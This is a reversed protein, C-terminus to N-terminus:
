ISFRVDDGARGGAYSAERRELQGLVASDHQDAPVALLEAFHLLGDLLFPSVRDGHHAVQRVDGARPARSRLDDREMKRDGAEDVVRADERHASSLVRQAPVHRERGVMESRERQGLRERRMEGVARVDDEDAGGCFVRLALEGLGRAEAATAIDRRLRARAAASITASSRGIAPRSLLAPM